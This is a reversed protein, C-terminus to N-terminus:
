RKVYGQQLLEQETLAMSIPDNASIMGLDYMTQLNEPQDLGTCAYQIRFVGRTEDYNYTVNICSANAYKTVEGEAGATLNQLYEQQDSTVGLYYWTQNFCTVQDGSCGYDLCNIDGEGDKLAFSEIDTAMLIPLHIVGSGEFVASYAPNTESEAAGADEADAPQQIEEVEQPEITAAPQIDPRASGSDKKMAPALVFQGLMGAVFFVAVAVLLGTWKRKPKEQRQRQQARPAPESAAHRPQVPQAPQAAAGQQAGCYTCFTVGEPIQKGCNRCYM